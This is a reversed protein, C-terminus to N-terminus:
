PQLRGSPRQCRALVTALEANDLPWRLVECIGAEALANVNIDVSSAVALLVPKLPAVEGLARALDLGGQPQSGSSILIIDFRGPEYRCAAIADVALEFGVPEYGLAALKEEDRLLRDREREVFLVTEGHGLPLTSLGDSTIIGAAIAPLWIEFRSGCGPESQVNIAGDHDRVIERVTALGLGTGALRTTFFPEFMRRGVREEIGRGNDSVSLCVYRGPSLEGDNMEVFAAVQEQKAAVRIWGNDNTAQAANTCLNLIVQQLQAPEGSVAVDAPVDEFVLEVDSPLSARLLSAAEQLLTRVQVPRARADTRRGFTLINDVLDRGREAARRIEDIHQAPKTGRALQPEIMESYGLIAGIINNFNHAIGSALSGVMQMRRSRELWTSLKARDRELFEREVANAVADAALRVMPVPSIKNKIVRFRDFGMIGQVRGPRILPLCAWARVGVNTLADRVSGPPLAGVDAVTVGDPEALGLQESIALAQQPWGPPFTVGDKSWTHVRIPKEDLVVYARDVDVTRSLDRLVQTLRTGTEAPSCNILRTSNEALVHEFAAQRRLAVARARLRLGLFVLMVLLLLSVVYLLLRYRQEVAEVVSRHRSFLERTEELAQTSAVAIFAKLTEDVAPLQDYLLQAHSLMARASEADPGTTPAQQAFQDIREQLARLADLSTDRSLHLIAAALAGTAPALQVDHALFASSTSLLGVYSLSNQLLANSTKFRELLAEQEVVTAALQDIPRADLREAQAHSRLRTVADEMARAAIAFTDYDRLLGSRAQLVDRHLSAEALAYDDLTQLTVAYAPANTDIGRLLLWTLLALLFSVGLIFPLNRM